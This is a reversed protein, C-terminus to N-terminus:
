SLTQRDMDGFVVSGLKERKSDPLHKNLRCVERAEETFYELVHLDEGTLRGKRDRGDLVSLLALIGFMYMSLTTIRRLLFERRGIEGRALERGYLLVGMLILRRIRKANSEAQDLAKRMAANGFRINWKTRGALLRVIRALMSLASGGSKGLDKGLRRMGFLAPYISHIETTGEFVTAVRFDRMRKEYPFTKLYGSGGAVQLADYVADWARTTGFLKCHSTEVATNALPNQELLGAIVTNMASSVAANVKTRIIKEQILQFHKIPVQFQVRFSARKLMDRLSVDMLATSAAGLGLRGYNLVSMAIKFGDGPNGICNEVPVRVNKFRIAATSSAKLGMKPVDEGVKVGEWGTEVILAGMFGPRKPDLQAFVTLGGAYNANTIYAKQGNLIYHSGDSTLSAETQIHQADSGIHPETLAYSFIMEGSAALPLYKRRQAENGFLQIGKVGISLHALFTIAISIDLRVMEEVVKLYEWLSLGVGGYEPDISLGFFGAAGMERLLDPPIRGEAELSEPTHDRLIKRYAEIIADIKERDPIPDSAGFLAPYFDGHYIKEIFM